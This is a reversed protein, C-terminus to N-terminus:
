IIGYAFGFLIYEGISGFCSGYPIGITFTVNIVCYKPNCAFPGDFPAIYEYTPSNCSFRLQCNALDLTFYIPVGMDTTLSGTYTCGSRTGTGNGVGIHPTTVVVNIEDQLLNCEEDTLPVCCCTACDGGLEFEFFFGNCLQTYSVIGTDMLYYDVVTNLGTYRVCYIQVAWPQSGSGTCYVVVFYGYGYGPPPDCVGVLSIPGSAGIYLACYYDPAPPPPDLNFVPLTGNIPRYRIMPISHEGNCDRIIIRGTDCGVEMHCRCTEEGDHDCQIDDQAPYTYIPILCACAGIQEDGDSHVLGIPTPHVGDFKESGSWVTIVEDHEDYHILTPRGSNDFSLIYRDGALRPKRLCCERPLNQKFPINKCQDSEGVVEITIDYEYEGFRYDYCPPPDPPPQQDTLIWEELEDRALIQYEMIATSGSDGFDFRDCRRKDCDPYYKLDYDTFVCVKGKMRVPGSCGLDPKNWGIELSVLDPYRTDVYQANVGFLYDHTARLLMASDKFTEYVFQLRDSCINRRFVFTVPLNACYAEFTIDRSELQLTLPDERYFRLTSSCKEIQNSESLYCAAWSSHNIVIKSPDDFKAIADLRHITLKICGGDVFLQSDICGCLNGSGSGLPVCARCCDCYLGIGEDDVQRGVYDCNTYCERRLKICTCGDYLLIDCPTREFQECCHTREKLEEFCEGASDNCNVGM